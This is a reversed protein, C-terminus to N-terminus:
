EPGVEVAEGVGLIGVHGVVGAFRQFTEALVHIISVVLRDQGDRVPLLLHRKQGSLVAIKEVGGPLDDGFFLHYPLNGKDLMELCSNDPLSIHRPFEPVDTPDGKDHTSRDEAAGLRCHLM